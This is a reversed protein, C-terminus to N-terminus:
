MLWRERLREFTDLLHEHCVQVEAGPAEDVYVDREEVVLTWWGLESCGDEAECPTGSWNDMVDVRAVVLRKM